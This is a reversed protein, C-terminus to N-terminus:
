KEPRDPCDHHGFMNTPAGCRNCHYGSCRPPDFPVWDRYPEEFPGQILPGQRMLQRCGHHDANPFRQAMDDNWQVALLEGLRYRDLSM